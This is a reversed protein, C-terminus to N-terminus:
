ERIIVKTGIAVYERLENIQQNTLAICGNTWNIDPHIDLKEETEEGLGHIGIYGGLPTDQPPKQKSKFAQAIQKFESASIINNKYGYWADLLNPYDLQMFYHFQSNDKFDIIKYVGVPTKKDGLQRKTGDGGKGTAIRYQKIVHEGKLVALEQKSKFIIIDYGDDLAYSMNCLLILILGTCVQFYNITATRSGANNM